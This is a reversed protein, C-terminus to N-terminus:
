IIRMALRGPWGQQQLFFVILHKEHVGSIREMGFNTKCKDVM